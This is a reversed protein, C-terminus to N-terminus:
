PHITLLYIPSYRLRDPPSAKTSLILIYSQFDLSGALRGLLGLPNTCSPVLAEFAIYYSPPEVSLAVAQNRFLLLLIESKLSSSPSCTSGCIRHHSSATLIFHSFFNRVGLTAATPFLLALSRNEPRPRFRSLQPSNYGILIQRLTPCVISGGAADNFGLGGDMLVERIVSHSLLCHEQHSVLSRKTTVARPSRRSIPHRARPSSNLTNPSDLGQAPRTRERLRVM